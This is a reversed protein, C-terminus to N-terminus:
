SLRDSLGNLIARRTNAIIDIEKPLKQYLYNDIFEINNVLIMFKTYYSPGNLNDLGKVKGHDLIIEINSDLAPVRLQIFNQDFVLECIVGGDPHEIIVPSKFNRTIKEILKTVKCYLKSEMEKVKSIFDEQEAYHKDMMEKLM